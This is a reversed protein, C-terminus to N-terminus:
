FPVTFSDLKARDSIYQEPEDRVVDKTACAYRTRSRKGGGMHISGVSDYRVDVRFLLAASLNM